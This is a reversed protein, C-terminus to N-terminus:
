KSRGGQTAPAGVNNRSAIPSVEGTAGFDARHLPLVELTNGEGIDVVTGPLVVVSEGQALTLPSRGPMRVVSGNTSRLDTVIVIAGQQRLELHSASVEKLPSRVSVLRPSVGPVIRPPAPRRGILTPRDLPVTDAGNLRFSYNVPTSERAAVAIQVTPDNEVAAIEVAAIIEEPSLRTAHLVPDILEVPAVGRPVSSGTRVHSGAEVVAPLVGPEPMDTAQRHRIITDSDIGAPIEPLTRLPSLITEDDADM